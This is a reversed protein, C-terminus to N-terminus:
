RALVAGLMISRLHIVAADIADLSETVDEASTVEDLAEDIDWTADRIAVLIPTITSWLSFEEESKVEVGVGAWIVSAQEHAAKRSKADVIVVDDTEINTCVYKM